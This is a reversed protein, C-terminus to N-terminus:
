FILGSYGACNTPPRSRDPSSASGPGTVGCTVGTRGSGAPMSFVRSRSAKVVNGSPNFDRSEPFISAASV